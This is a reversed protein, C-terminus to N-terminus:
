YKKLSIYQYKPCGTVSEPKRFLAFCAWKKARWFAPTVDTPAGLFKGSLFVFPWIIKDVIGGIYGAGQTEVGYSLGLRYFAAPTWPRKHTPDDWFSFFNGVVYNADSKVLCSNDSPAEIFILGGPKCIRVLEAFFTIPESVHEIVHSALVFDFFDDEFKTKSNEINVKEFKVDEPIDVPVDVDAAYNQFDDRVNKSTTYLGWGLCGYDLIKAQQPLKKLIGEIM